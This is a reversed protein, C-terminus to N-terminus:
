DHRVRQLGMAQLRGPEEMWPIKWAPTNSYTAMEKKGTIMYLHSLQIMFFASHQLIPPKTNHHLLLSKLNGQVALLDFLDIRFSILESCETSAYISFSLSWYKPWRVHLTWENSFVRISPFVSPLRSLPCFLILYNSLTVLKIPMFKHLSRSITLSLSAQHAVAWPTAFLQVCCQLQVVVVIYETM